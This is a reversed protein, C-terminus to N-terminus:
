SIGDEWGGVFSPIFLDSIVRVFESRKNRFISRRNSSVNVRKRREPFRRGRERLMDSLVFDAVRGAHYKRSFLLTRQETRGTRRTKVSRRIYEETFCTDDDRRVGRSEDAVGSGVLDVRRPTQLSFVRARNRRGVTGRGRFTFVRRDVRAWRRGTLTTTVAM